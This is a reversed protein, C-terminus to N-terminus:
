SAAGLDAAAEARTLREVIMPIWQEDSEILLARRGALIAAVGTAGSGAFADLVLEGQRSSTCGPSVRACGIWPNFTHDTWVIDTREGM